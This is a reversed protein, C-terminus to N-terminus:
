SPTPLPEILSALEVRGKGARKARLMAQDAKALLDSPEVGDHPALAVGISTGVRALGGGPLTVPAQVAESLRNVIERWEAPDVLMTLLVVFEDGGIRGATDNARLCSQLRRGIEVLLADGAEHGHRDNVQKFGDLDLYCVAVFTGSRQCSLISQRMRDALLLRNPLGTLADHFAIHEMQAQLDKMATIDVMMWLSLGDGLTVGSMDIWLLHGDKHRLQLQSRFQVGAALVPYTQAGVTEFSLDDPFFGRPSATWSM